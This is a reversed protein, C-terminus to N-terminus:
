NEESRSIRLVRVLEKLRVYAPGGRFICIYVLPACTVVLIVFCVVVATGSAGLANILVQM